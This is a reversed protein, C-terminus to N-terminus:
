FVETFTLSRSKPMAKLILDRDMKLEAIRTEAATLAKEANEAREEADFCRVMWYNIDSLKSYDVPQPVKEPPCYSSPERQPYSVSRKWYGSALAKKM